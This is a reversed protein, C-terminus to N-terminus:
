DQEEIPREFRKPLSKFLTRAAVKLFKDELIAVLDEDRETVHRYKLLFSRKFEGKGDFVAPEPLVNARMLKNLCQIMKSSSGKSVSSGTESKGKKVDSTEKLKVSERERGMSDRPMGVYDGSTFDWDEVKKRWGDESETKKRGMDGNGKAEGRKQSEPEAWASSSGRSDVSQTGPRRYREQILVYSREQDRKENGTSQEMMQRLEKATKRELKWARELREVEKECGEKEIQVADLQLQLDEAEARAKELQQRLEDNQLEWSEQLLKWENDSKQVEEDAVREIRGAGSIAAQLESRRTGMEWLQLVKGRSKRRNWCMRNEPELVGGWKGEEEAIGKSGGNSGGDGEQQEWEMHEANKKSQQSM